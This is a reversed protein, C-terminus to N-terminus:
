DNNKLQLPHPCDFSLILMEDHKANVNRTCVKLKFAICKIFKILLSTRTCVIIYIDIKHLESIYMQLIFAIDDWMFYCIEKTKIKM